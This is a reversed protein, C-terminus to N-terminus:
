MNTKIADVYQTGSKGNVDIYEIKWMPILYYVDNGAYRHTYVIKESVFEKVISSDVKNLANVGDYLPESCSKVVASLIINGEACLLKGEDVVANFFMGDVPCKEDVIQSVSVYLKKDSYYSGTIECNKINGGCLAKMFRSVAKENEDSIEVGDNFFQSEPITQAIDSYEGLVYEFGFSNSYIRLSAATKGNDSVSYSLGDPTEVMNVVANKSFLQGCLREATFKAAGANDSNFIYIKNDPVRKVIDVKDIKIGANSYYEVTNDLMKDSLMSLNNTAQIYLSLLLIDVALFSLALFICVKKLFM